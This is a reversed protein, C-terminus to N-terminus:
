RAYVVTGVLSALTDTEAAVALYPREVPGFIDVVSGVTDLRENVLETGIAPPDDDEARAVAVGQAAGVVSGARKM